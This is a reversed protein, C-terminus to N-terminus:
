SGDSPVGLRSLLELGRARADGADAEMRAHGLLATAEEFPDGYSRWLEALEAYAVAADPDGKAEAIAASAAQRQLRDRLLPPEKDGVLREAVDARGAALAIRVARALESSRYEGAVERTAAEFAELHAAAAEAQGEALAVAAAAVLAPALAHLEEVQRARQLLDDIPVVEDRRGRALLVHTRSAHARVFVAVDILEEPMSVLEDAWALARDWDGSQVLAELAGAKAYMAQSRINRRDALELAAEWQALGAAPGETAWAWEGLYARSSVVDAVRGAEEALRLAERLDATGEEIEGLSCRADGRLHLAMISLEDGPELLDLALGALSRAEDVHGAFLEEEARYAYARALLPGRPHGQLIRVSDALAARARSPDGLAGLQSGIRTLWGGASVEDGLDRAIALAQELRELVQRGDLMGSRRGAFATRGLCEMRDRSGPPALGLAREYLLFAAGPDVIAARDASALLWRVAPDRASELLDVEGSSEAVEAATAFHRALSEAYEDGRTATAAALWEGAALHRAARATRPLRGYAVERILAHTFVYTEGGLSSGSRGRVIGRRALTSLGERLDDISQGSLAALPELMVEEGLVSADQVVGRLAPALADLRAAILAHVSDPTALEFSPNESPEALMRAFEVAYLPNGGARELLRVRDTAPLRTRLVLSALLAETEEPRLPRLAITTADVRAAGWGEHRELLELRAAVVVLVPSGSLRDITREVVEVLSPDGWQLDEVVLVVPRERAAWSLVRAWADAVEGAAIAEHPDSPELTMAPALRSALWRREREDEPEVVAALTELRSRAASVDDATSIGALARVTDDIPAFTIGEGYPPCRGTIWRARAAVLVELEAVLRSKGLGPEGLVTVTQVSREGSAREFLDALLSLERERGVFTSTPAEAVAPEREGLVRWVRLPESKGKVTAPALAEVEFGDRLARLTTEGVVVADRPALSQMRSATNVVDGAVAEGVQPGSGFSVVAEGTNVAIRVALQPDRTRLEAMSTLVALACRVARIPDDEHAVPAGFLALVGDGALDKVTGGFAEVSGIIRAIADQLVLKLEEPDLREGLPTSGVVDAFMATVVRREERHGSM